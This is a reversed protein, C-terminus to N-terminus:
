RKAAEEAQARDEATLEALDAARIAADTIAREAADRIANRFGAGISGLLLDIAYCEGVTSERDYSEADPFVERASERIARVQRRVQEVQIALVKLSPAVM